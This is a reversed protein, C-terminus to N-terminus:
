STSSTKKALKTIALISTIFLFIINFVKLPQGAFYHPGIGYPLDLWAAFRGVANFFPALPITTVILFILNPKGILNFIEQGFLLIVLLWLLAIHSWSGPSLHANELGRPTHAVPQTGIYKKPYPGPYPAGEGQKFTVTVDPNTDWKLALLFGISVLFLLLIWVFTMTGKIYHFSNSNNVRVGFASITTLLGLFLFIYYVAAPIVYIISHLNFKIFLVYGIYTLPIAITGMKIAMNFIKDKVGIVRMTILVLLFGVVFFLIHCHFQVLAAPSIPKHFLKFRVTMYWGTLIGLIGFILPIWLIKRPIEINSVLENKSLNPEPSYVFPIKIGLALLIILFFVGFFWVEMIFIGTGYTIYEMGLDAISNVVPEIAGRKAKSIYYVSLSIIWLAPALFFTWISFKKFWKKISLKPLLIASIIIFASWWSTHAHGVKIYEPVAIKWALYAWIGILGGVVGIFLTVLSAIFAPINLGIYIIGEKGDESRYNEM